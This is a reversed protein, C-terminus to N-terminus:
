IIKLCVERDITIGFKKFERRVIWWNVISQERDGTDAITNIGLDIQFLKHLLIPQVRELVWDHLKNLLLTMGVGNIIRQSIEPSVYM